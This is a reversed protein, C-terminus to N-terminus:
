PGSLKRGIKAAHDALASCTNHLSTPTTLKSTRASTFRLESHSKQTGPPRYGDNGALTLPHCSQWCLGSQMLEHFPNFQSNQLTPSVEHWYCWAPTNQTMAKCVMQKSRQFTTASQLGNPSASAPSATPSPPPPPQACCHNRRLEHLSMTPSDYDCAM